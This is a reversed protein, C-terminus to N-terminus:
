RATLLTSALRASLSATVSSTSLVLLKRSTLCRLRVTLSGAVCCGQIAHQAHQASQRAVCAPPAEQLHGALATRTQEATEISQARVDEETGQHLTLVDADAQMLDAPAHDM